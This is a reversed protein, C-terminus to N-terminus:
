PKQNIVKTKNGDKDFFVIIAGLQDDLAFALRMVGNSDTMAIHDPTITVGKKTGNGSNVSIGGGKGDFAGMVIVAKGADNVLGFRKTITYEEAAKLGFAFGFLSLFLITFAIKNNM